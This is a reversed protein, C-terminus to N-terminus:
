NLDAGAPLSGSRLISLTRKGRQNEFLEFGQCVRNRKQLCAINMLRYFCGLSNLDRSCGFDGKDFRVIM